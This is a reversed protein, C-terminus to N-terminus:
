VVWLTHAIAAELEVESIVTIIAIEEIDSETVPRLILDNTLLEM